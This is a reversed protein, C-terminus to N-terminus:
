IEKGATNDNGVGFSWKGKQGDEEVSAGIPGQQILNLTAPKFISMKSVAKNKGM